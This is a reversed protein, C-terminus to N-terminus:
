KSLRALVEAPSFLERQRGPDTAAAALRGALAAHARGCPQLAALAVIQWPLDPLGGAQARAVLADLDGGPDFACALADAIARSPAYTGTTPLLALARRALRRAQDRAALRHAGCAETMALLGAVDAFGLTAVGEVVPEDPELADGRRWGAERALWDARCDFFAHRAGPSASCSRPWPCPTTSTAWSSPRRPPTAWPRSSATCAPAQRAAAEHCAAAERYQGLRYFVRGECDLLRAALEPTSPWRARLMAVAGRQAEAGADHLLQVHLGAIWPRFGALSAGRLRQLRALHEPQGGTSFVQSALRALSALAADPRRARELWYCAEELAAATRLELAAQLGRRVLRTEGAPSAHLLAARTLDLAASADGRDLAEDVRAALAPLAATPDAARVRVVRLRGDGTPALDGLRLRRTLDARLAAADDGHIRALDAALWDPRQDLRGAPVLVAGLGVGPVPPAEPSELGLAALASWADPFRAAPDPHCLRALAAAVPPPVEGVLAARIMRGAAQLDSGASPAAGRALAPDRFARNGGVPGGAAGLAPGAALGLDILTVRGDPERVRVNDPKLDLHLAGHLHLRGLIRLLEAARPALRDWPLEALEGPFDEGEAYELVLFPRGDDAVGQDLLRVIGEVGLARLAVAERRLDAGQARLLKVVVTHGTIRDHALCADGFAGSGLPRGLTYRAGVQAPPPRSPEMPGGGPYWSFSM